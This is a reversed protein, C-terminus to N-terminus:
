YNATLTYFITHGYSGAVTSPTVSLKYIQAVRDPVVGTAAGSSQVARQTTTVGLDVGGNVAKSGTVLAGYEESGVSVAGDTVTTILHGGADQLIKDAQMYVTYGAPVTSVVSTMAVATNESGSAISGFAAVSNTLAYVFDNGGVPVAGITAQDGAWGDVTMVLGAITVIKGVAVKQSFGLNEVVAIHDGVSFAGVSSVTVTKGIENFATYSTRSGNAQGRFQLSLGSVSQPVRYGALGQYNTSTGLGAVSGGLTDQLNYNTSSGHDSGGGNVDDWGIQYNTSTMAASASQAVLLLVLGMALSRLYM